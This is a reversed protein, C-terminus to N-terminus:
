FLPDHSHHHSTTHHPTTHRPTSHSHHAYSARDFETLNSVLHINDAPLIKSFQQQLRTSFDALRIAGTEKYIYQQGDLDALKDGGGFFAVRYYQAFIRQNSQM